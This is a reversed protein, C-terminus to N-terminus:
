KDKPMFPRASRRTTAAVAIAVANAAVIVAVAPAALAEPSGAPAL